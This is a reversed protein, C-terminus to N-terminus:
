ESEFIIQITKRNVLFIFFLALSLTARVLGRQQDILTLGKPNQLFFRWV